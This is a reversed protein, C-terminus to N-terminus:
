DFRTLNLISMMYTDIVQDRIVKLLYTAVGFEDMENERVVTENEITFINRYNKLNNNLYELSSLLFILRFKM